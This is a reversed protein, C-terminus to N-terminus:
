SLPCVALIFSFSAWSSAVVLWGTCLTTSYYNCLNLTVVLPVVVVVVFLRVTKKCLVLTNSYRGVVLAAAVVVSGGGGRRSGNLALRTIAFRKHSVDEEARRYM